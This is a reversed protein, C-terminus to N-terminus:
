YVREFGGNIMNLPMHYAESGCLCQEVRVHASALTHLPPVCLVSGDVFLLVNDATSPALRARAVNNCIATSPAVRRSVACIAASPTGSTTLPQLAASAIM